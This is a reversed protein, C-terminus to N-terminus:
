FQAGTNTLRLFSQNLLTSRGGDDSISLKYFEDIAFFDVESIESEMALYREQTLVFINKKHDESQKVHNDLIKRYVHCEVDQKKL